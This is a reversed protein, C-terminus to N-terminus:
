AYKWGRTAHLQLRKVKGSATRITRYRPLRRSGWGPARPGSAPYGPRERSLLSAVFPRFDMLNFTPIM